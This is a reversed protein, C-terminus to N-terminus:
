YKHNKGANEAYFKTLIQTEEFITHIYFKNLKKCGSKKFKIKGSPDSNCSVFIENKEKQLSIEFVEGEFVQTYNKEMRRKKFPNLKISLESKTKMFEGFEPHSAHVSIKLKRCKYMKQDDIADCKYIGLPWELELNSTMSKEYLKGLKASSKNSKISSASHINNM